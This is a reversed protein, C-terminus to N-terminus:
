WTSLYTPALGENRLITVAQPAFEVQGLASPADGARSWAVSGISASTYRAKAGTTDGTEAMFLAQECAARMFADRVKALTPLEESDVDYVAGLAIRDVTGSALGLLRDNVAAPVPTPDLYATLDDSTAYVPM